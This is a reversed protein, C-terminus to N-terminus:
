GHRQVLALWAAAYATASGPDIGAIPEGVIPDAGVAPALTLRDLVQLTAQQAMLTPPAGWSRTVAPYGDEPLMRLVAVLYAHEAVPPPQLLRGPLGGGLVAGLTRVLESMRGHDAPEPPLLPQVALLLELEAAQQVGDVSPVSGEGPEGDAGPDEDGGRGPYPAAMSVAQAVLRAVRSAASSGLETSATALVMRLVALGLGPGARDLRVLLTEVRTVAADFADLDGTRGHEGLLYLASLLDADRGTEPDDLLRATLLDLADAADDTDELGGVGLAAQLVIASPLDEISVVGASTRPRALMTDAWTQLQAVLPRVWSLDWRVDGEASRLEIQHRGSSVCFIERGSFDAEEVSDVAVEDPVVLAADPDDPLLASEDVEYVTRALLVDRGPGVVVSRPTALLEWRLQAVYRQGPTLRLGGFELHEPEIGMVAGSTLRATLLPGHGDAAQAAWCIRSGAALASVLQGAAPRVRLPLRDVVLSQAGTNVLLLRTTWGTSLSHRLNVDLSDRHRMTVDIEDEDVGVARDLWPGTKGDVVAPELDVCALYPRALHRRDAVSIMRGTEDVTLILRGARRVTTAASVRAASM